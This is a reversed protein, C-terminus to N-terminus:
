PIDVEQHYNCRVCTRAQRQVVHDSGIVKMGWYNFRAVPQDFKEWPGWSHATEVKGAKGCRACDVRERCGHLVVVKTWAHGLLCRMM